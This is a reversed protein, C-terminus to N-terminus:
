RGVAEALRPKEGGELDELLDEGFASSLEAYQAENKPAEWLPRAVPVCRASVKTLARSRFHIAAFLRLIRLFDPNARKSRPDGFGCPAM